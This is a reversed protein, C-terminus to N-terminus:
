YSSVRARVNYPVLRYVRGGEVTHRAKGELRIRTAVAAAEAEFGFTFRTFNCIGLWTGLVVKEQSTAWLITTGKKHLAFTLCQFNRTNQFERRSLHSILQLLRQLWRLSCCGLGLLLAGWCCVRKSVNACVCSGAQM